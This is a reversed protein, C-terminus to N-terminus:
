KYSRTAPAAAEFSLPEKHLIPAKDEGQYEWVSVHAFHEDDRRAEGDPTQYEV